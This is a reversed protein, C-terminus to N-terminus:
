YNKPRGRGRRTGVMALQECRRVPADISRRQIHEFWRLRAERMKDEMPAVGVKERIDENRIKDMRTHGCMWRMMRMEAVKMMKALRFLKKERGKNGLEEYMRAFAATKAEMVAMKAEKRSVKYRESNARKEQEGSSGVFRLYAAKKAEVKDQVVANWWWDGNHGGTRGSSIGLVERAAKRICDAMMSWMTNADRSSRWAGM